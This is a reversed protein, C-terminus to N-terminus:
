VYLRQKKSAAVDQLLAEYADVIASSTFKVLHMSMSHRYKAMSDPNVFLSDIANALSEADDNPVTLGCPGIAEPLGGGGTGIIVCGCAAGELAVIGFPENWRSPVVLVHHRNFEEALRKGRLVGRFSVLQDLGLRAAQTKLNDLEPGDGIITADIRKGKAFLSALATILLDVGKVRDLRGAFVIHRDRRVNPMLSFTSEDYPNPIIVGPLGVASKLARSIYVNQGRRCAMRKLKLLLPRTGPLGGQHTVILPRPALPWPWFTRFSIENHWVVDAERHLDFLSRLDPQRVVPFSFIGQMEKTSTVLKVYHGRAVLGEAFIQAATELGGLSPYFAHSSILVKM